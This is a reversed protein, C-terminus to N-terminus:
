PILTWDAWSDDSRQFTQWVNGSKDLATMTPAYYRLGQRAEVNYANSYAVSIFPPHPKM